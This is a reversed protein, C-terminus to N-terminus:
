SNKQEEKDAFDSLVKRILSHLDLNLGAAIKRLRNLLGFFGVTETLTTKEGKLNEDDNKAM